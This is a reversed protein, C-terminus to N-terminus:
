VLGRAKRRQAEVKRARAERERIQAQKHPIEIIRELVSYTYGMRATFDTVAEGLLTALAMKANRKSAFDEGSAARKKNNKSRISWRWKGNRGQVVAYIM